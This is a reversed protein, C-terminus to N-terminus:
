ATGRPSEKPKVVKALTGAAGKVSGRAAEAAQEVTLEIDQVVADIIDTKPTKRSSRKRM